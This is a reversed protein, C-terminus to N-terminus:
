LVSPLAGMGVHGQGATPVMGMEPHSMNSELTKPPQTFKSYTEVYNRQHYATAPLITTLDLLENRMFQRPVPRGM